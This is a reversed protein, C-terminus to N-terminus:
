RPGMTLAILIFTGMLMSAVGVLRVHRVAPPVVKQAFRHHWRWPIAFLCITTILIVWGFVVFARPFLMAQARLLIAGGVFLRVVLETYHARASGAFSMLFRGARERAVFSGVGLGVLYLGAVLVVGAAITEIM